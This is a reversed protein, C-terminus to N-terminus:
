KVKAFAVAFGGMPVRIKLSQKAVDQVSVTLDDEQQMAALEADSIPYEALCGAPRCTQFPLAKATDKGFQVTIGAPLYIGLPAQFMMVPKKTDAPLRVAISLSARGGPGLRLLQGARCDLGAKTNGCTVVWDPSPAVTATAKPAAQAPAGSEKPQQTQAQSVACLALLAVAAGGARIVGSAGIKALLRM